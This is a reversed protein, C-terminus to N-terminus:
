IEAKTYMQRACFNKFARGEIKHIKVNVPPEDQHYVVYLLEFM